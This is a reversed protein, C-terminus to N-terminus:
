GTAQVSHRMLYARYRQSHWGLHREVPEVLITQVGSRNAGVVDNIVRDGVMMVRDPPLEITALIRRFFRKTPKFHRTGKEVVRAQISNALATIDRNTNSGMVLEIGSERIRGLHRIIAPAFEDGRREMLTDDIDLLMCGIHLSQLVAIDIDMVSGAIFDPLLPSEHIVRRFFKPKSSM